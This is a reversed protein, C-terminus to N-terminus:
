RGRAIFRTQLWAAIDEAEQPTLSVHSMINEAPRGAETVLYSLAREREPRSWAATKAILAGSVRQNRPFLWRGQDFKGEGEDGHCAACAREKFLKEGTQVNGPLPPLMVPPTAGPGPAFAHDFPDGTVLRRKFEVTWRFTKPDFRGFATIDGRGETAQRHMAYPLTSGEAFTMDPTIPLKNEETIPSSVFGPTNFRGSAFDERNVFAPQSTGSLGLAKADNDAYAAQGPDEQFGDVAGEAFDIRADDATHAPNTRSAKWHWVDATDGPLAAHMQASEGGVPTIKPDKGEKLNPHCYGACGSGGDRFNGQRDVIPFMFLVRDENEAAEPAEAANVPRPLGEAPPVHPAIRWRGQSHVWEKRRTSADHNADEFEVAFYLYRSDFASAVRIVGPRADFYESLPYNNMVRGQVTVFRQPDWEKLDGDISMADDQVRTAVVVRPNAPPTANTAEQFQLYLLNEGQHNHSNETVALSFYTNAPLDGAFAPLPASLLVLCALRFRIGKM